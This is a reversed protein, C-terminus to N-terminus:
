FSNQFLLPSNFESNLNDLFVKLVPYALGRLNAFTTLHCLCYYAATEKTLDPCFPMLIQASWSNLCQVSSVVFKLFLPPTWCDVSKAFSITGWRGEAGEAAVRGHGVHHISAAFRLCRFRIIWSFVRQSNMFVSWSISKRNTFRLHDFWNDFTFKLRFFDLFFRM